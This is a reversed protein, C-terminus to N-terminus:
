NSWIIRSAALNYYQTVILTSTGKCAATKMNLIATKM